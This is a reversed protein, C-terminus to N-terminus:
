VLGGKFLELGELSEVRRGTRLDLVKGNPLTLYRKDKSLKAGTPSATDKYLGGIFENIDALTKMPKSATGLGRGFYDLEAETLPTDEEKKKEEVIKRIMKSPEEGSDGSDPIESPKGYGTYVQGGTTIGFLSALGSLPGPLQPASHYVGTIRGKEDRTVNTNGQGILEKIKDGILAKGIGKNLQPNDDINKQMAKLGAQYDRTDDLATDLDSDNDNSGSDNDSGGFPDSSDSFGEFDGYSGMDMSGGNSLGVIGGEAKNSSHIENVLLRRITGYKKPYKKKFKAQETSEANAYDTIFTYLEDYLNAVDEGDVGDYIEDSM